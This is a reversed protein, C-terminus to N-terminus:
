QVPPNIGGNRIIGRIVEVWIEWGEVLPMIYERAKSIPDIRILHQPKTAEILLNKAYDTAEIFHGTADRFIHDMMSPNNLPLNAITGIGLANAAWIECAPVAACGLGSVGAVGAATGLAELGIYSIALQRAWYSARPDNLITWAMSTNKISMELFECGSCSGIPTPIIMSQPNSSVTSNSTGGVVGCNEPRLDCYAQKPKNGGLVQGSGGGVLSGPYQICAGNFGIEDCFKYGSPDILKTPRNVVYSFRNFAQPNGFDPVVIDASIFRGLAADYWRANYDM